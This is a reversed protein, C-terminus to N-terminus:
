RRRRFVRRVIGVRRGSGSVSCSGNACSSLSQVVAPQKVPAPTPQTFLEPLAQKVPLVPASVQGTGKCEDCQTDLRGSGGCMPCQYLDSAKEPQVAVPLASEPPPGVAAAVPTLVVPEPATTDSKGAQALLYGATLCATVIAFQKLQNM